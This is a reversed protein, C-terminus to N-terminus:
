NAISIGLTALSSAVSTLGTMLTITEALSQRNEQDKNPVVVLCGPDIRPYTKIFLFRKTSKVKGNPYIVFPRKVASKNYGGGESIYYKLRSSVHSTANPYYVSGLVNVINSLKPILIIDNEQLVVDDKGHPDDLAAEIDIGISFFKADDGSLTDDSNSDVFSGNLKNIAMNRIDSENFYDKNNASGGRNSSHERRTLSAGKLYADPTLGKAISIVDSLYTNNETANHVGPFLVEGMVYIKIQDQYQPSRRVVIQDFPELVFDKTADSMSLDENISFNYKESIVDSYDTSNKDNLRRTVEIVALSASEKLGNSLLILDEIRMGSSYALTNPSNVEGLITITQSERLSDIKPIFVKDYNQLAIDSRGMAVDRTVFNVMSTTYDDNRRTIVGRSAFADGMLGGASTILDNLTKINDDIQFDGPRWVAGDITVINRFENNARQVVISDGDIINVSGFNNENVVLVEKYEGNKRYLKVDTKYAVDNFGGAYDILSGVSEGEKMHFYMPRKVEGTIQAKSKYPRVIVVDGDKLVINGSVDGNLIFDYIDLTAVLESERFVDIARLDGIANTGGSLHLIHFLTALSPVTYTGPYIAEGSVSVKISGIQSVSLMLQSSEGLSSYVKSITQELNRKADEVSMGSINVPGYNPINVIGDPSILEKLTMETDGWITIVVEDGSSLIYDRPTAININPEYSVSSNRFLDQGFTKNVMNKLFTSDDYYSMTMPMNLQNYMLTDVSRMQTADPDAFLGGQMSVGGLGNMSSQYQSLGAQIDTESYGMLAAAQLMESSITQAKLSGYSCLTLVATAIFIAIKNM